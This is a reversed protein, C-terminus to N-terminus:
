WAIIGYIFRSCGNFTVYQWWREKIMNSALPVVILFMAFVSWAPVNHQVSNTFYNEGDDFNGSPYIEEFGIIGAKMKRDEPNDDETMQAYFGDIILRNEVQTTFSKLSSLITNAFSRKVAPDLYVQISPRDNENIALGKEEETIGFQALTQNVMSAVRINVYQTAGAPIVVALIYDGEKILKEVGESKIPAGDIETVVNFIETKKLGREIINGLTDADENALVLDIGSQQYDRFPADMIIAMIIILCLPMVFLMVVGARDRAILLFEKYFSAWLKTMM